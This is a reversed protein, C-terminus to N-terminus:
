KRDETGDRLFRIPSSSAEFNSDAILPFSVADVLSSVAELLFASWDRKVCRIFADFSEIAVAVESSREWALLSPSEKAPEPPGEFVPASNDARTSLNFLWNGLSM